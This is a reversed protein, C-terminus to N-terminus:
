SDSYVVYECSTSRGSNNELLLQYSGAEKAEFIITAQWTNDYQEIECSVVETDLSRITGADIRRFFMVIIGDDGEFLSNRVYCRNSAKLVIGVTDNKSLSFTEGFYVGYGTFPFVSVLGDPYKNKFGVEDLLTLEFSDDLIAYQPNFVNATNVSGNELPLWGPSEITFWLRLGQTGDEEECVIKTYEAIGWKDDVGWSNEYSGLWDDEAGFLEGILGELGNNFAGLLGEASGVTQAEVAAGLTQYVLQEFAGGDSEYGVFVIGLEDGVQDTSYITKNIDTIEGDKLNLYTEEESPIRIEQIVGGDSIVVYVYVEGGDTDRFDSEGNDYVGIKDLTITISPNLTKVICASTVSEGAQNFAKVIYQYVTAPNLRKDQYTSVNPQMTALLQDDRFIRFGNENDSRDTWRLLVENQTVKEASLASPAQPKQNKVPLTVPSSSDSCGVVGIGVAICLLIIIAFMPIKKM